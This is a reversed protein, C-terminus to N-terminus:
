DACRLAFAEVQVFPLNRAPQHWLTLQDLMPTRNILRKYLPEIWLMFARSDEGSCLKGSLTMHFDFNNLVFPYGYVRLLKLQEANLNQSEKRAQMEEETLAARYPELERVCIEALKAVDASQQEFCLAVFGRYLRPELGALSVCDTKQALLEVKRRLDSFTFEDRLSFPAKLTAHFGYYAAPATLRELLIKAPANQKILESANYHQSAEIENRGLVRTGFEYLPSDSKPAFYLAYRESGFPTLQKSM